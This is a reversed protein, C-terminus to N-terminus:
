AHSCVDKGKGLVHSFGKQHSIGGWFFPPGCDILSKKTERRRFLGGLYNGEWAGRGGM